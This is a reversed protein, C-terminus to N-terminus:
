VHYPIKTNAMGEESTAKVYLQLTVDETDRFHTWSMIAVADADGPNAKPEDGMFPMAFLFLRKSTLIFFQRENKPHKKADLIWHKSPNNTNRWDIVQSIRLHRSPERLDVLELQRRNCVLITNADGVWLIRAWGDEKWSRIINLQEKSEMSELEDNLRMSQAATQKISYGRRNGDIDWISWNSEQDVIAFQRQYHHNFVIDAHPVGGTDDISISHFPRAHVSSPPLDYFCSKIAARRRGYLRPHFLAIREPFRVALFNNNNESQAFCVQRIPAADENWYGVDGKISLGELYSARHDLQDWGQRQKVLLQLRLINGGEGSPMAAIYRIQNSHTGPNIAGVSLLQGVSADYITSAATAAVSIAELKPVDKAAPALDPFDVAITSTTARSHRLPRPVSPSPFHREAPVIYEWEGLQRYPGGNPTRSFAWQNNELDYAPLGFHGFNLDNPSEETM